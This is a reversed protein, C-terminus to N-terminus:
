EDLEEHPDDEDYIAEVGGDPFTRITITRTSYLSDHSPGYIKRSTSGPDAVWEGKRLVFIRDTVNPEKRETLVSL